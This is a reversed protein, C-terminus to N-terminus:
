RRRSPRSCRNASACRGGSSVASRRRFASNASLLRFGTDVAWFHADTSELMAALRARDRVVEHVLSDYLDAPDASRALSSLLLADLADNARASLDLSFAMWHGSQEPLFAHVVLAPVRSGDRRLFEKQFPPTFGGMEAAQRVAADGVAQWDPPTLARASLGEAEFAERPCGLMSLMADNCVTVQDGVGRMIGVHSARHPEV